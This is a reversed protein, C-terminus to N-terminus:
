ALDQLQNVTVTTLDTHVANAEVLDEAPHTTAVALVPFGGAKAAEIGVHADEIVVCQKPSIKLRQAANLFVEPNPKGVSVDAAAIIAQFRGTVGIVDM